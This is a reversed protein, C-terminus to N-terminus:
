ELDRPASSQFPTYEYFPIACSIRQHESKGLLPTFASM